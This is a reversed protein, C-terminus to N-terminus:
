CIYIRAWVALWLLMRQSTMTLLPQQQCGTWLQYATPPAYNGTPRCLVGAGFALVMTTYAVETNDLLKNRV